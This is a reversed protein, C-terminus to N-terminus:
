ALGTMPTNGHDAEPRTPLARWDPFRRGMQERKRRIRRAYYRALDFYTSRDGESASTEANMLALQHHSYLANLDMLAEMHSLVSDRLRLLAHSIGVIGFM